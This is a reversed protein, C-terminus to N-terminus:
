YGIRKLAASRIKEELRQSAIRAEVENAFSTSKKGIHVPHRDFAQKTTPHQATVTRFKSAFPVNIHPREEEQHEEIYDRQLTASYMAQTNINLGGRKSM